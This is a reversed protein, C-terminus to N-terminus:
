KAMFHVKSRFHAVITRIDAHLMNDDSYKLIKKGICITDIYIPSRIILCKRLM